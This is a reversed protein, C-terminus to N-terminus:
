LITSGLNAKFLMLNSRLFSNELSCPCFLPLSKNVKQEGPTGRGYPRPLFSTGGAQGPSGAPFLCKEGCSGM